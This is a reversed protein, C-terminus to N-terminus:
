SRKGFRMRFTSRKLGNKSRQDEHVQTDCGNYHDCTEDVNEDVGSRNSHVGVVIVNKEKCYPCVKSIVYETLAIYVSDPKLSRPTM